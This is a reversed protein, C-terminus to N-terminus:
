AASTMGIAQVLLSSDRSQAPTLKLVLVALPFAVVGGGLPTSGTDRWNELQAYV